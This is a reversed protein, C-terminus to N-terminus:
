HPLVYLLDILCKYPNESPFSIHEFDSGIIGKSIKISDDAMVILYKDLGKAYAMESILWDHKGKTFIVIFIDQSQIKESVKEPIMKSEYDIGDKVEFDLLSCFKNVIEATKKGQGDFRHSIFITKKLNYRSIPKRNIPSNSANFATKLVEHLGAVRDHDDSRVSIILKSEFFSVAVAIWINEKQKFWGFNFNPLASSHRGM